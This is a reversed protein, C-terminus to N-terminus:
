HGYAVFIETDSYLGDRPLMGVLYNGTLSPVGSPHVLNVPVLSPTSSLSVAKFDTYHLRYADGTPRNDQILPSIDNTYLTCLSHEGFTPRSPQCPM